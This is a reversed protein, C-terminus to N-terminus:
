PWYCSSSDGGGRHCGLYRPTISQFTRPLRPLPMRMAWNSMLMTGDQFYRGHKQCLAGSTGDSFEWRNNIITSNSAFIIPRNIYQVWRSLRYLYEASILQKSTKVNKDDSTCSIIHCDDLVECDKLGDSSQWYPPISEQGWGSLTDTTLNQFSHVSLFHQQWSMKCSPLWYTLCRFIHILLSLRM